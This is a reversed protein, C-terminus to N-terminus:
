VIEKKKKEIETKSINQFIGLGDYRYLDINEKNGVNKLKNLIYTGVLECVEAGDYCGMPVEFIEEGTKKVCPENNNFLLTKRWQMIISLQDDHIDTITKAYSIADTFLDILISPYFNEVDFNM